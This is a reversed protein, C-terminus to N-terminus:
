QALEEDYVRSDFIDRLREIYNAGLRKEIIDGYANFADKSFPRVLIATVYCDVTKCHQHYTVLADFSDYDPNGSFWSSKSCLECHHFGQSFCHEILELPLDRMMKPKYVNVTIGGKKFLCVVEYAEKLFNKKTM